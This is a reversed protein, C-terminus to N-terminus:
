VCRDHEATVTTVHFAQFLLMSAANLPATPQQNVLCRLASLEWSAAVGTLTAQM